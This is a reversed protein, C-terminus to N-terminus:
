LCFWNCYLLKAFLYFHGHDERVFHAAWKGQPWHAQLRM